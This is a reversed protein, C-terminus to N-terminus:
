QGTPRDRGELMWIMKEKLQQRELEYAIFPAYKQLYDFSIHGKLYSKFYTERGKLFIENLKLRAITSQALKKSESSLSPNPIM